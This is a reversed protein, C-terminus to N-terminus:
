NYILNWMDKDLFYMEITDKEMHFWFKVGDVELMIAYTDKKARVPVIGGDCFGIMYKEIKPMYVSYFDVIDCDIWSWWNAEWLEWIFREASLNNLGVNTLEQIRMTKNM